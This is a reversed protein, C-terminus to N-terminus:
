VKLVIRRRWLVALVVYWLAVFALAFALSAARPPLWPAFAARYIVAELPITEGRYSVTVVSYILREMMGSGVFAVIPNVGFAVFPGTWWIVKRFEILWICTALAVAAMGGTFLVYSSTWLNKNIPFVWNWVLGLVMGIAGAGFLWNIREALPEARTLLRGAAVGLLGTAIAPLTSLPGEPDWTKTEAWLHGDLLLRDLWAALTADPPDLTAPGVGPVPVVTLLLWYGVLLLAAVIAQTRPRTDIVLLGTCLYVVGIRQLVGPIRLHVLREAPFFPFAALLLGLLVIVAGRRLVQRRLAADGDGRARRASLSFHTTIGVIFLFFPFILDTPTWGHWEAHRLPPYINGWSGPDNVLLM